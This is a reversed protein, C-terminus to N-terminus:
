YGFVNLEKGSLRETTLQLIVCKGEKLFPKFRYVLFMAQISMGLM